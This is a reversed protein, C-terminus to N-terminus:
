KAPANSYGFRITVAAGSTWKPEPKAAEGKTLLPIISTLSAQGKEFTGSADDDKKAPKVEVHALYGLPKERYKAATRLHAPAYVRVKGDELLLMAGMHTRYRKQGFVLVSFRDDGLRIKSAVPKGDPGDNLIEIEADDTGVLMGLLLPNDADKCWKSMLEGPMKVHEMPFGRVPLFAVGSAPGTVLAFDQGTPDIRRELLGGANRATVGMFREAEKGDNRGFGPPLPMWSMAPEKADSMYQRSEMWMNAAAISVQEGPTLAAALRIGLHESDSVPTMPQGRAEWIREGAMLLEAYEEYGGGKALRALGGYKFRSTTGEYPWTTEMVFESVNGIMHLVGEPTGTHSFADVEVPMPSHNPATEDTQGPGLVLPLAPAERKEAAAAKVAARVHKNYDAWVCKLPDFTDGWPFLRAEAGRAAREWQPETPLHFGAWRAFDAAAEYPIGRIPRRREHPPISGNKWHMPPLYRPFKLEIGAPIPKEQAQAVLPDWNEKKEPNLIPELAAANVRLLTMWGNQVLAGQSGPNLEWLGVAMDHLTMPKSTTFADMRDAVFREWQANTVEYKWIRFGPVSVPHRPTQLLLGESWILDWEKKREVPWNSKIAKLHAQIEKEDAGMRFAPTDPFEVLWAPCDGTPAPASPGGAPPSSPADEPSALACAAFGALSVSAALSIFRAHM